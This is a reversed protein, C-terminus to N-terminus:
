NGSLPDIRYVSDVNGRATAGPGEVSFLRGAPARSVM